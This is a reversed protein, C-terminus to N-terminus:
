KKFLLFFCCAEICELDMDALHSLTIRGGGTSPSEWVVLDMFLLFHKNGKKGMFLM